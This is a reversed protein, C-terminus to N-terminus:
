LRNTSRRALFRQGCYGPAAWGHLHGVMRTSNPGIKTGDPSGSVDAARSHLCPRWSGRDSLLHSLLSRLLLASTHRAGPVGPLNWIFLIFFGYFVLLHAIGARRDRLLEQHFTLYRIVEGVRAPLTSGTTRDPSSPAARRYQLFRRIFVLAALGCAAYAAVYFAIALASPINGLITRTIQEYDNM